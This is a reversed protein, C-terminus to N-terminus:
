KESNWLEFGPQKLINGAYGDNKPKCEIHKEDLQNFADELVDIATKVAEILVKNVDDETM